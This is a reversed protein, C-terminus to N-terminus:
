RDSAIDTLLYTDAVPRINSIFFNFVENINGFISKPVFVIDRPQLLLNDPAKSHAFVKHMNIMFFQPSGSYPERIIIVNRLEAFKVYGGALGIAEFATLQTDFPYLGPTKVEGLVLVKSSRSEVVNVSVKPDKLYTLLEQRVKDALAKTTVGVARIEGTVPYSIKGDSRVTMSSKYEPHNWVTIEIVDGIGLVYGSEGAISSAYLSFVCLMLILIARTLNRTSKNNLYM